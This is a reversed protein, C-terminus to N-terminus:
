ERTLARILDAQQPHDALLEERRAFKCDAPAFGPAKTTGMLAFRGGPLLRSGQWVYRPVVYQVQQGHMVDHGLTVRKAAGDALVLMEVPDGAYFHYIEDTSLQHIASFCDPESTLLYFIASGAARSSQYRPISVTEDAVWTQRFYGGEIPLPELKLHRILENPDIM